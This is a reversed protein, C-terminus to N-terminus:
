EEIVPIIPIDAELALENIQPIQKGRSFKKVNDRVYQYLERTSVINDKLDTGYGNAKGRMGQQLYYSFVGGLDHNEISVDGVRTSTLVITSPDYKQRRSNYEELRDPPIPTSMSINKSKCAEIVCLKVKAPSTRIQNVLEEESILDSPDLYEYPCLGFSTTDLATGHGVFYFIVMDEPYVQLSDCLHTKISELINEKTAKSNVLVQVTEPKTLASSLFIDKFRFANSASFRLPSLLHDSEYNDIGVAMIWIKPRRVTVLQDLRNRALTLNLNYSLATTYDQTASEYNALKEHSLGRNQYAEALDPMLVVAQSFKEIAEKYRGLSHLSLGLNNVVDAQDPELEIAKSFDQVAEEFKDMRHYCLGRYNYAETLEADLALAKNQDLLAEEYKELNYLCNGRNMYALADYPTLSIAQTFAMTADAYDKTNMKDYGAAYYEDATQAWSTATWAAVLITTFYLNRKM